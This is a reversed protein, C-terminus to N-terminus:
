KSRRKVIFKDTRKNQRTRIGEPVGWPTCAPRGGSAKGEGGGLPHDVPNMAVGRVHPRKGLYRRRGAKGYSINEHQANSVQGVTAMCSTMVLRVEGSPMKIQAYMGEKAVIQASGGASRILKAGAGPKLELNHIMTGLPIDQIPLANGPKIEATPGSMLVEGVQLGEPAIIYRVEGDRYSILAIRVSRNPDYEITKVTAPIGAKDRKFDIVRLMRKNGGGRQWTTVRGTSNRGGTKKVPKMLAKHPSDSTVDKYDSATQFRRGPSTPNYKRIGM